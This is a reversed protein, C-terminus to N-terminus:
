WTSAQNQANKKFWLCCIFKAELIFNVYKDITLGNIIHCYPM